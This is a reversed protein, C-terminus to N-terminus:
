LDAGSMTKMMQEMDPARGDEPAKYQNDHKVLLKESEFVGGQTMSGEVVVGINERFMQPPMAAAHVRVDKVGDTVTFKLDLAREDWDISGAKVMGGLRVNASYAKEGADIVETPTWYYVLNNGLNGLSVYLIGVGALALAAALLIKPSM